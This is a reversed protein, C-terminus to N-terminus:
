IWLLGRERAPLPNPLPYFSIFTSWAGIDVGEGARGKSLPPLLISCLEGKLFL